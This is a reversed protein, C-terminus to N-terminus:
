FASYGLHMFLFKPRDFYVCSIVDPASTLLNSLYVAYPLNRFSFFVLNSLM